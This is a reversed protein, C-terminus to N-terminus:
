ASRPAVQRETTLPGDERGQNLVDGDARRHAATVAEVGGPDGGGPPDSRLLGALKGLVVPDTVKPDLGQERCSSDALRRAADKVADTAAGRGVIKSPERQDLKM